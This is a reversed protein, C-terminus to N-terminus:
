VAPSEFLQIRLKYVNHFHLTANFRPFSSSHRTEDPYYDSQDSGLHEFYIFVSTNNYLKLRQYMKRKTSNILSSINASSYYKILLLYM